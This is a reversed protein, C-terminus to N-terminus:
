ERITINTKAEFRKQAARLYNKNIDIGIWQINGPLQNAISSLGYGTGVGIEL